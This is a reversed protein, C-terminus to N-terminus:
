KLLHYVDCRRKQPPQDLDSYVEWSVGARARGNDDCWASVAAHIAPLKSFDGIHVAHAASGAPTRTAVLGDGGAVPASTLVGVEADVEGDDRFRFIWVHRAGAPLTGAREMQLIRGFLPMVNRALDQAAVRATLVAADAAEVEVVDIEPEM